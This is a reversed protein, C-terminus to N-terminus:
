EAVFMVQSGDVVFVYSSLEGDYNICRTAEYGGGHFVTGYTGPQLTTLQVREDPGVSVPEGTPTVTPRQCEETTGSTSTVALEAEIATDRWNRVSVVAEETDRAGVLSGTCGSAGTAAAAVISALFRRRRM